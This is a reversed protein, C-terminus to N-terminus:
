FIWDGNNEYYINKGVRITNSKTKGNFSKEEKKLNAGRTIYRAIFICMERASERRVSLPTLSPYEKCIQCTFDFLVDYM